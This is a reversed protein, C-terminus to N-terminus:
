HSIINVEFLSYFSQNQCILPLHRQFKRTFNFRDGMFNGSSTILGMQFLYFRKRKFSEEKAGKSSSDNSELPSTM